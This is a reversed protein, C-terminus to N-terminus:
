LEPKVRPFIKTGKVYRLGWRVMETLISELSKGKETLFYEFRVPNNQYPNKKLLGLKEMRKLRAALINTPIKEESEAFEAFRKKGLFLDRIILLTWKDGVVDLLNAIPCVSRNEKDTNM